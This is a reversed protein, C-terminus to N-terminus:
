DLEMTLTRMTDENTLDQRGYQRKQTTEKSNEWTRVAAQWDKMKNKGIMWGKSSYFDIFRQPDVDNTREGCYDTVEGLTPPAFARNGKPLIEKKKEIEKKKQPPCKRSYSRIKQAYDSSIVSLKDCRISISFSEYILEFRNQKAFFALITKLKKRSISPFWIAFTNFNMVLPEDIVDERALIELTRWFVYPGAPGFLTESEMHDPDSTANTLHKFWKM